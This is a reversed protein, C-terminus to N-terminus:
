PVINVKFRSYQGKTIYIEDTSTCVDVDVSSLSLEELGGYYLSYIRQQWGTYGGYANKANINVCVAYYARGNLRSPARSLQFVKRPPTTFRIQASGADLLSQDLRNHILQKYDKPYPGYDANRITQMSIEPTTACAVLLLSLSAILATRVPFKTKM